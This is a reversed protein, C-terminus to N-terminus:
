FLNLLFLEFMKAERTEKFSNDDKVAPHDRAEPGVVVRDSVSLLFLVLHVAEFLSRFQCSLVELETEWAFNNTRKGCFNFRLLLGLHTHPVYKADVCSQPMEKPLNPAGKKEEKAEIRGCFQCVAALFRRPRSALM